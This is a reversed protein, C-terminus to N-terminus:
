AAPSGPLYRRVRASPDRALQDARREVEGPALISLTRWAEARVRTRPHTTFDLVRPVDGATGLDALGGLAGVATADPVDGPALADRYVQPALDTYGRAYLTARAHYRVRADPDIMAERLHGEGHPQRARAQLARLRIRPSACTDLLPLVADQDAPSLKSSTVLRAAWQWLGPDRTAFAAEVAETPDILALWRLCCARAAPDTSRAGRRLEEAGSRRLLDEVGALMSGARSRKGLGDLLPLLRVLTAVNGPDALRATVARQALDRVQAVPDNLRLLLFPLAFPEPSAELLTVGTERLYGSRDFSMLAAVALAHPAAPADGPAGPSASGGMLIGTSGISGRRRRYDAELRMLEVPTATRLMADLRSAALTPDDDWSVTM